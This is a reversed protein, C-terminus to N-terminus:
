YNDDKTINNLEIINLARIELRTYTRLCGLCNQFNLTRCLNCISCKNTCSITLNQTLDFCSICREQKITEIEPKKIETITEPPIPITHIFNQYLKQSKSKEKNTFFVFPNRFLNILQNENLDVKLEENNFLFNYKSNQNKIRIKILCQPTNIDTVPRHIAGKYLKLFIMMDRSLDEVVKEDNKDCGGFLVFKLVNVLGRCIPINGQEGKKLLRFFKLIREYDRMDKGENISKKIKEIVRKYLRGSLHLNHRFRRCTILLGYCFADEIFNFAVLKPYKYKKEFSNEVKEIEDM